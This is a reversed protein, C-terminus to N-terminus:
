KGEAYVKVIVPEGPVVTADAYTIYAWMTWAGDQDLDSASDIDYYITQGDETAVWSGTTKDPKKYKILAVSVSTLTVGTDLIIRLATQGVYIKAM